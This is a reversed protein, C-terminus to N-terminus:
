EHDRRIIGWGVETEGIVQRDIAILLHEDLRMTMVSHESVIEAPSGEEAVIVDYQNDRRLKDMFFDRQQPLGHWCIVHTPHISRIMGHMTAYDSLGNMDIYERRMM